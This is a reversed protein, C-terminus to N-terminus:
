RENLLIEELKEWGLTESYLILDPFEKCTVSRVKFREWEQDESLERNEVAGARVAEGKRNHCCFKDEYFFKNITYIQPHEWQPDFIWDSEEPEKQYGGWWTV